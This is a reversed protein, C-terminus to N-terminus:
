HNNPANNPVLLNHGTLRDIDRQYDPVNALPLYQHGLLKVAFVIGELATMQVPIGCTSVGLTVVLMKLWPLHRHKGRLQKRKFLRAFPLEKHTKMVVLCGLLLDRRLAIPNWDDIM